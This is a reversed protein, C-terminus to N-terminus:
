VLAGIGLCPPLVLVLIVDSLAAVGSSGLSHGIMLIAPIDNEVNFFFFSSV